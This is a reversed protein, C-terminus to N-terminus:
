FSSTLGLRTVLNIFKNRTSCVRCYTDMSMSPRKSRVALFLTWMTTIVSRNPFIFFHVAIRVIVAGFTALSINLLKTNGYPGGWYRRKSIPLWNIDEKKCFIAFKDTDALIKCRRVVWVGIDLHVLKTLDDQFGNPGEKVFFYCIPVLKNSFYIIYVVVCYVTVNQHTRVFEDQRSWQRLDVFYVM